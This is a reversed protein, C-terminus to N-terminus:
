GAFSGLCVHLALVHMATAYLDGGPLCSAQNWQSWAGSLLQDRAFRDLLLERFRLWEQGGHDRLVKSAFFVFAPERQAPKELRKLLLGFPSSPAASSAPGKPWSLLAAGCLQDHGNDTWDISTLQEPRLPQDNRTGQASELALMMFAQEYSSPQDPIQGAWSSLNLIANHTVGAGSAKGPLRDRKSLALVAAAHNFRSLQEDGPVEGIVFETDASRELFRAAQEIVPSYRARQAETGELFALLALASIGVQARGSGGLREPPWSGEIPDQQGALWALARDVTQWPNGDVLVQTDRM